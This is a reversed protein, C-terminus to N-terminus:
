SRERNPVWDEWKSKDRSYFSRYSGDAYRQVKLYKTKMGPFQAVNPTLFISSPEIANLIITSESSDSSVVLAEEAGVRIVACGTPFLDDLLIPVTISDPKDPTFCLRM